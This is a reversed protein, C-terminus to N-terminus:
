QKNEQVNYFNPTPSIAIDKRNETRRKIKEPKETELLGTRGWRLSGSSNKAENLLDFIAM